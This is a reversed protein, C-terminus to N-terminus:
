SGLDNAMGLFSLCNACFATGRFEVAGHLQHTTSCHYLFRPLGPTIQRIEADQRYVKSIFVYGATLVQKRMDTFFRTAYTFFM